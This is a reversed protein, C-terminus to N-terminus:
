NYTMLSNLFEAISGVKEFGSMENHDFVGSVKEDESVDDLDIPGAAAQFDLHRILACRLNFDILAKAPKKAKWWSIGDERLRTNMDVIYGDYKEASPDLAIAQLRVDDVYTFALYDEDFAKSPDPGLLLGNRSDDFGGIDKITRQIDQPLDTGTRM